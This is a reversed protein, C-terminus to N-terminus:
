RRLASPKGASGTVVAASSNMASYDALSFGGSAMTILSSAAAPYPGAAGTPSTVMRLDSASLYVDWSTSNGLGSSGSGAACHM